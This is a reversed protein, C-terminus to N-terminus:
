VGGSVDSGTRNFVLVYEWSVRLMNADLRAFLETLRAQAVPDSFDRTGTRAYNEADLQSIEADLQVAEIIDSSVRREQWQSRIAM